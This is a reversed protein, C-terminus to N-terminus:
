LAGVAIVMKLVLRRFLVPIINTIIIIIESRRERSKGPEGHPHAVLGWQQLKSLRGKRYIM